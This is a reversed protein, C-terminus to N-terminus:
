DRCGDLYVYRNCIEITYLELRQQRIINAMHTFVMEQPTIPAQYNCNNCEGSQETKNVTSPVLYCLGKALYVVDICGHQKQNDRELRAVVM